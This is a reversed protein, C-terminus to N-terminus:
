EQRYLDAEHAGFGGFASQDEFKREVMDQKVPTTLIQLFVVSGTSGPRLLSTEM